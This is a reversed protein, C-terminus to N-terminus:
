RKINRLSHMSRELADYIDKEFNEYVAGYESKIGPIMKDLLILQGKTIENIVEHQMKEAKLLILFSSM